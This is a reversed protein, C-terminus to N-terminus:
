KLLRKKRDIKSIARCGVQGKDNNGWAYVEGMSSLALIHNSGAQVDVIFTDDIKNEM